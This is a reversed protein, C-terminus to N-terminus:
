KRIHKYEMYHLISDIRDAATAIKSQVWAPLEEDEGIMEFLEHAAHAIKMLDSRAMNVEQDHHEEDSDELDDHVDGHPVEEVPEMFGEDSVEDNMDGDADDEDGCYECDCTCEETDCCDCMEGENIGVELHPPVPFAEKEVEERIMKKLQKLDIKM